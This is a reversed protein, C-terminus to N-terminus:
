KLVFDANRCLYRLFEEVTMASSDDKFIASHECGEHYCLLSGRHGNAAGRWYVHGQGVTIKNGCRDCVFEPCDHGEKTVIM